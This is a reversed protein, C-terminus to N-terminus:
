NNDLTLILGHEDAFKKRAEATSFIKFQTHDPNWLVYECKLTRVVPLKIKVTTACPNTKKLVQPPKVVPPCSPKLKRPKKVCPKKEKCSLCEKKMASLTDVVQKFGAKNTETNKDVKKGVKEIKGGVKDLGANVKDGNKNIAEVFKSEEKNEMWVYLPSQIKFILLFLFIAVLIKWSNQWFTTQNRNQNNNQNSNQTNM